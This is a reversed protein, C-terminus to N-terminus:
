HISGSIGFRHINGLDSFNSYAYDFRFAKWYISLGGSIGGFNTQATSSTELDQHLAHSYGLRLRLHPSLTLEGGASFRKLRDYWQDAARNLGHLMVSIELPLHELKKSVGLNFTTPVSEKLGGYSEVNWGLNRLTAAVYLNKQFPVTYHLGFSFTIAQANYNEIQSYAYSLGVGYLFGNGLDGAQFLELAFDNASFSKGTPLANQDTEEFQGYNMYRVAVAVRKLYPAVFSYAAQGGNIDLLYNAYNFIFPRGEVKALGAPNIAIANLDNSMTIFASGMAASRPSYDTNLFAFGSTVGALASYAGVFLVVIFRIFNNKM